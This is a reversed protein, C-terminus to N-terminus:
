TIRKLYNRDKIEDFINYFDDWWEEAYEIYKIGELYLNKAWDLDNEEEVEEALLNYRLFLTKIDESNKLDIERKKFEIKKDQDMEASSIIEKDKQLSEDAYRLAGGNQVAALVIEKDKKLSEDASYLASGNNTVAALVIERDKKISEDANRLAFGDNKVKNLWEARKKEDIM